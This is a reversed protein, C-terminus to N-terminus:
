TPSGYSRVDILNYFSSVPGAAVLNRWTASVGKRALSACLLLVVLQTIMAQFDSRLVEAGSGAWMTTM